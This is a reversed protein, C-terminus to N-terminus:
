NLIQVQSLFASNLVSGCANVLFGKETKNKIVQNFILYISEFGQIMLKVLFPLLDILRNISLSESLFIKTHHPLISMTATFLDLIKELVNTSIFM